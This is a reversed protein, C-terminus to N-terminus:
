TVKRKDERSTDDWAKGTEAHGATACNVSAAYRPLGPVSAIYSCREKSLSELGDGSRAGYFSM